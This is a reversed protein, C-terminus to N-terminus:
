GTKPWRLFVEWRRPSLPDSWPWLRFCLRCRARVKPPPLVFVDILSFLASIDSRFGTFLVHNSFSLDKVLSRLKSDESGNGVILCETEPMVQAMLHAAQLLHHIGKYGRLFAVTGIVAHSDAIGLAGRLKKAKSPHFRDLDVGSPISVIRSPEIGNRQIM